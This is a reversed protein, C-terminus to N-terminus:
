SKFKRSLYEKFANKSEVKKSHFKIYRKIYYVRWFCYVIFVYLKNKVIKKQFKETKKKNLKTRFPDGDGSNEGTGDFGINFVYSKSPFVSLGEQLLVFIKWFVAWTRTSGNLNGELDASYHYYRDLNELDQQNFYSKQKLFIESKIFPEWRDSWTAWAWSNVDDILRSKNSLLLNGTVSHANIQWVDKEESYFALSKNLFNLCNSECILDDELVIIKEYKKLVDSVGSLINEKLGLNRERNVIFKDKFISTSNIIKLVEDCKKKDADRKLGDAFFFATSFKAEPNLSLSDLLSSLHEPRNYTFIALPAYDNM